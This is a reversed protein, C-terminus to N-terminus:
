AALNVDEAQGEGDNDGDLFDGASAADAVPLDLTDSAEIETVAPPATGNARAACEPFAFCCLLNVLRGSNMHPEISHSRGVDATM